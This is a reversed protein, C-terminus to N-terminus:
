KRSFLKEILEVKVPIDKEEFLGIYVSGEVGDLYLDCGLFSVDMTISTESNIKKEYSAEEIKTFGEM